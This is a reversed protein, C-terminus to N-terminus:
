VFRGNGHATARNSHGLYFQKFLLNRNDSQVQRDASLSLTVYVCTEFDKKKIGM